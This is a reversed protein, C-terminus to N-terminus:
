CMGAVAIGFYDGYEKRIYRVLDAAHGFGDEIKKWEEGRPPDTSLSFLPGFSVIGCVVM